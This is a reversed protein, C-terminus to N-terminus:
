GDKARLQKKHKRILYGIKEYLCDNKGLRRRVAELLEIERKCLRGNVVVVKVPDDLLVERMRKISSIACAIERLAAHSQCEDWATNLIVRQEDGLTM